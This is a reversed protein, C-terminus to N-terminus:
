ITLCTKNEAKKNLEKFKKIMKGEEKKKLDITYAGEPCKKNYAGYPCNACGLEDLAYKCINKHM